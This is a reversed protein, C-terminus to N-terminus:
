TAGRWGKWWLGLSDAMMPKAIGYGQGLDCGLEAVVQYHENTEIGEAVSTLGMNRALDIVTKVIAFADRSVLCERVFSQDVKIETVPLRQLRTLSSFGTGFDDISLKFGKLRLRTLTDLAQLANDMAATETIEITTRETPVTHEHCLDAIDDALSERHLNLPSLNIAVQLDIGQEAWKRQQIIAQTFVTRSLDDILGSAEALPIFQDPPVLGQAAHRWRVLAEAGHLAGDRLSVKPQYQLFLDGNAIAQALANEDLRDPAQIKLGDLMAKLDKARVPKTITGAIDLGREVGVRKAADLVRGDVGSMILIRASSHNAALHRLLEIGDMEPMQLDLAVLTPNWEAAVAEFEQPRSTLKVKFGASLAVKAVFAGFEKEDDVILLRNTM